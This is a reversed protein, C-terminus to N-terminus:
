PCAILKEGNLCTDTGPGGNLVDNETGGDLEDNGPGGRLQDKGAEGFLTDNGNEGILTDNGDGGFLVDDGDNGRLIDHETGGVLVDNGLGGVLIDKGAEGCLLDNGENGRLEDNGAGGFIVDDGSTGTIFDNGPGGVCPQNSIGNVTCGLTPEAVTCPDPPPADFEYAGSDCDGVVRLFGRQDTALGCTGALEIAPSGLVLAHTGTNGGNDALVPDLISTLATPLTGDSTALVDSGDPAFGYIAMATDIGDHGFVNRASTLTGGAYPNFVEVGGEGGDGFNGAVISNTLVVSGASTYSLNLVGGNFPSSTGYFGNGTITSNTITLTSNGPVASGYFFFVDSNLLGSGFIVSTNGSVTCNSVTMEATGEYIGTNWLAGGFLSLNSAFMDRNAEVTSNAVSASSSGFSLNVVTGGFYGINFYALSDNLTLDTTSDGASGTLVAGGIGSFNGAFYSRSVTVTSNVAAASDYNYAVNAVGGGLVGFNEVVFSNSITLTPSNANYGGFNAIGGGFEEATNGAVYSGQLTLKGLSAIGGGVEADGGTVGTEQLTLDGDKGVGFIRFLDPDATDRSVTNFNGAITIKSTVVPLGNAGGGYTANHVDTLTISSTLTITDAAVTLNAADIAAILEAPTGATFNAAHSGTPAVAILLAAGALSCAWQRQLQRRAKRPLARLQRYLDAFRILGAQGQARLRRWAWAMGNREWPWIRKHM